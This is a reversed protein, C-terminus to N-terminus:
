TFLLTLAEAYLLRITGTTAATRTFVAGQVEKYQDTGSSVFARMNCGNWTYGTPLTFAKYAGDSDTTWSASTVAVTGKTLNYARIRAGDTGDHDHDNQAQANDAVADWFTAGGDGNEPKKVGNSLTQM